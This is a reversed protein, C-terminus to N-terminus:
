SLKELIFYLPFLILLLVIFFLPMVLPAPTQIMGLVLVTIVCMTINLFGLVASANPRNKAEGTGITPCNVYALTIGLNIFFYPVFLTWINVTGWLFAALMAAAAPLMILLGMLISRHPSVRHATLRSLFSGLVMGAAPILNLLGYASPALGLLQIVVFPAMAAFVYVFATCSGQIFGCTFLKPNNCRKTYGDVITKLSLADHSKELCTEPLKLCLLLLVVGYLAEFYFTSQWGVVQTLFGGAAVALNPAIAFALMVYAMKQRGAQPEYYDSVITFTMMLGVSAGFASVTRAVALLWFQDLYGALVCLLTGFISVLLGIYLTPKRGLKNSLPGYPLQGLAYGALFLTVTLQALSPSIKFFTAIQPLAPSFLVACVAPFSILLFLILTSPEPLGQIRRDQSTMM